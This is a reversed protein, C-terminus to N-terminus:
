GASPIANGSVSLNKVAWGGCEQDGGKMLDTKIMAEQQKALTKNATGTKWRKVKAGPAGRALQLVKGDDVDSFEM